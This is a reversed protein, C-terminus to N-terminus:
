PSEVGGLIPFARRLETLVDAVAPSTRLEADIARTTDLAITPVLRRVKRGVASRQFALLERLEAEDFHRTYVEATIEDARQRPLTEHVFRTVIEGLMQWEVEVLRRNLKQQLTGALTRVLGGIIQEDVRQRATDDITLRALELALARVDERQASAPGVMLSVAAVM